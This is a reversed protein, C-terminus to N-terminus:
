RAKGRFWNIGQILQEFFKQAELDTDFIKEVVIGTTLVIRVIPPISCDDVRQCKQLKLKMVCDPNLYEDDTFKIM